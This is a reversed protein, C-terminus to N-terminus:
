INAAWTGLVAHQRHSLFTIAARLATMVKGLPEGLKQAVEAVTLGAFVTLELAERQPEPLQKIIKMLLDLRADILEIEASPPIWEQPIAELLRAHEPQEARVRVPPTDTAELRSARADGRRGKPRAPQAPTEGTVRREARLRELASQRGVMMLWAAVSANKHGPVQAENWLRVFVEELVEEAAGRAPLIRALMGLLRPAFRDYLEALAAMDRQAILALLEDMTSESNM